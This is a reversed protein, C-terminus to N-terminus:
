TTIGYFARVEQARVRQQALRRTDNEFFKAMHENLMKETLPPFDKMRGVPLIEFQRTLPNRGLPKRKKPPALLSNLGLSTAPVVALATALVSKLMSRRNM